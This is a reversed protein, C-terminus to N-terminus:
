SCFFEKLYLSRRNPPRKAWLFSAVEDKLIVRSKVTKATFLINAGFDSVLLSKAGLDVLQDQGVEESAERLVEKKLDTSTAAGTASFDWVFPSLVNAGRKQFLLDNNKNNILLSVSLQGLGNILDKQALTAAYTTEFVTLQDQSIAKLHLVPGDFLVPHTNLFHRREEIAALEWSNFNPVPEKKVQPLSDLSIIKTVSLSYNVLKLRNM